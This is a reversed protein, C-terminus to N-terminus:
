PGLPWPQHVVWVPTPPMPVGPTLGAAAANGGRPIGGGARIAPYGVTQNPTLGASPGTKVELFCRTGCPLEAYLDPKTRVGGAEITTERGLVRGGAAELDDVTREVGAAGQAVPGAGGRTAAAGGGGSLKGALSSFGSKLFPAAKNGVGGTVAGFVSGGAIEGALEGASEDEDDLAAHAASGAAGAVAGCAVAATFGTVSSAAVCGGGAAVGAAIGGIDAKHESVFDATAGAADSVTDGVADAADEYWPRDEEDDDSSSSSTSEESVSTTSTGGDSTSGGSGDAASMHGDLEVNSVPNGGALAYRNQSLPDMSLGLDGVADMFMDEQLFRGTDLGFRRAGMDMGTANGNQAATGSDLRKGTYRYPNLPDQDDTDGSTLSKDAGPTGADGTDANGYADYGYSAKVKGDESLLQSVSGHVDVGYSFSQQSSDPSGVAQDTMTMRQGQANYSYTKTRLSPDAGSQVEQGVQTTLGIFSFDTTRDNTSAQHNETEEIVRDLADHVYQSSDTAVGGNVYKAQALMRNLDDYTYEQVVNANARDRPGNCDAKSGSGNTVCDQNGFDDYWYKSTTTVGSTTSQTEALQGGLYYQKTTTGLKEQTTVNGARIKNDGRLMAPEDLTYRVINDAKIEDVLVRGRADYTFKHKCPATATCDSAAVGEARKLVYQDQVRNGDEYRGTDTTYTIDHSETVAGAGNKTVLQKLLGNDYHDWTTTQRKTWTSPDALCGAGGRWLDRSKEWGADTYGMVLKEDGACADTSGLNLQTLMFGAEDYSLEVRRPRDVQVENDTERGNELRVIPAGDENYTFASFSWNAEGSKRNRIKTAEDFGNYVVKTEVATDGGDAGSPDKAAVMLNHADYKWWSTGGDRETQTARQGDQTYTWTVRKDYNWDADTGPKAPIRSTQLGLPGYDFLVAPVANKDLTRIWGPDYYTNQTKALASVQAPNSEITPLSQWAVRGLKDYAVHVYQQEGAGAKPLLKRVLHGALDYESRTAYDNYSGAGADADVARPSAQLTERGDEDYRTVTKLEPRTSFTERREVALGRQDYTMTTRHWREPATRTIRRGVQEVDGNSDYSTTNIRGEADTTKTMRHAADYEFSTVFHQGALASCNVDTLNARAGVKAVLDGALDFCGFTRRAPAGAAGYRSVAVPRDLVDYGTVVEYDQAASDIGKPRTTVVPRGAADYTVRTREGQTDATKDPGAILVSRDMRDYTVVTADATEPDPSGAGTGYVPVLERLVNDNADYKSVTWLLQGRVSRTSKPTSRRVVRGFEDVDFYNRYSRTDTGSALTDQHEADQEWVVTSDNDFGYTTVAGVPDTIESVQGSAHYKMTTRGNEPMVQATVLGATSTGPAGYEYTTTYDDGPSATRTGEPDTVTTTNGRADIGFSWTYDTPDTTVTGKPMTRTKLFGLHNGADNADAPRRHYTLTSVESMENTVKTPYGNEDYEFLQTKGNAFTVKSVKNDTTWLVNTAEENPNVIRSVKGSTDYSYEVDRQLPADSTMVRGSWNHSFSTTNQERDTWSKLKWRNKADPTPGWYTFTSENGLYDIVSSLKVSQTTGLPPNRRVNPDAIAPATGQPNTYTFVMKRDKVAIGEPSIGGVQTLTRLNGDHYYDFVLKSGSHDELSEVNGRVRGGKVEDKEYYDVKYKRGGADVIEIVRKKPGGPDQGSETAAVVFRLVNDNKDQVLRPYGEEDFWYTVGDPRTLRWYREPDTTAPNSTLYLNVGAPETWRVKGSADLAGTFEHLTGDGDVFRVYRQAQGNLTDATNPHVDLRSGFRLLGSINLSVNEGAPSDSHEELSNYTLDVITAIGRGPTAWPSYRWLLNGNSVNVMASSGGGTALQEYQWFRELGLNGALGHNVVVPQELPKNGRDSFWM